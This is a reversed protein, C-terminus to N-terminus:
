PTQIIMMFYSMATKLLQTCTVFNLNIMKAATLNYPEASRNYLIIFLKRVKIPCEYWTTHILQDHVRLSHDYVGQGCVNFFTLRFITASTLFAFLLSDRLSQDALQIIQSGCVSIIITNVLIQVIFQICFFDEIKNAFELCELHYMVIEEIRKVALQQNYSYGNFTIEKDMQEVKYRLVAFMGCCHLVVMFFFTDNALLLSVVGMCMHVLLVYLQWYYKVPDIFFEVELVNRTPAIWDGTIRYHLASPILPSVIYTMGVLYYCVALVSSLIKGYHAYTAFIKREDDSRLNNWNDRLSDVLRKNSRPQVAANISGCIALFTCLFAM